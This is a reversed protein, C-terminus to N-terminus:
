ITSPAAWVTCSSACADRRCGPDYRLSPQHVMRRASPLALYLPGPQQPPLRSRCCRCLRTTIRRAPVSQSSAAQLVADTLPTNDFLDLATAQADVWRVSEPAIGAHLLQRALARFTPWDTARDIAITQPSNIHTKICYLSYSNEMVFIGINGM